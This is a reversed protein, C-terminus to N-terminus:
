SSVGRTRTPHAVRSAAPVEPVRNALVIAVVGFLIPAAIRVLGEFTMFVSAVTPDNQLLPFQELLWLVTVVALVAAPVWAWPRPVVGARGIEVVAILALVFQVLSTAWSYALLTGSTILAVAMLQQVIAVVPTWIALACLAITGLPKRATVSGRGGIGIAFLVLAASFLLTAVITGGAILAVLPQTGVGIVVSGLFLAGGIIWARGPSVRVSGGTGDMASTYATAPNVPLAGTSFQSAAKNPKQV